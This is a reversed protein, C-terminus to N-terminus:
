KNHLILQVIAALFTTRVNLLLLTLSHCVEKIKAPFHIVISDHTIGDGM